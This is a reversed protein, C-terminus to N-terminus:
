MTFSNYNRLLNLNPTKCYLKNNKNLDSFVLNQDSKHLHENYSLGNNYVERHNRVCMYVIM